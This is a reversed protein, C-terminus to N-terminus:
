LVRETATIRGDLDYLLKFTRRYVIDAGNMSYIIYDLRLFDGRASLESMTTTSHLTGDKRFNEVKQYNRAVNHFDHSIQRHINGITEPFVDEDNELIYSIDFSGRYSGTNYVMIHNEKKEVSITGVQDSKKTPVVGIVTYDLGGLDHQINEGVMGKFNGKAYIVMRRDIEHKRYYLDDHDHPEAKVLQLKLFWFAWIKDDKKAPEGLRFTVNDVEIIEDPGMLIDNKYVFLSNSGVIYPKPLKFDQQNQDAYIPFPLKEIFTAQIDGGILSHLDGEITVDGRFIMDGNFVSDGAIEPIRVGKPASKFSKSTLRNGNIPVFVLGLLLHTKPNPNNPAINSGMVVVYTAEAERRGFEYRMFVADIRVESTRNPQVQVIDILDETEQVKAGSPTIAASDVYFNRVLSVDFDGTGKALDFGRFVNPKAIDLFRKNIPASRVEDKFRIDIFQAM